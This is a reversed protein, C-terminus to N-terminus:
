PLRASPDDLLDALQRLRDLLRTHQIPAVALGNCRQACEGGVALVAFELPLAETKIVLEIRARRLPAYAQVRLRGSADARRRRASLVWGRAFTRACRTPRLRCPPESLLLAPQLRRPRASRGQGLPRTGRPLHRLLAARAGAGAGPD